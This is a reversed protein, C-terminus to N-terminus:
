THQIPFDQPLVVAQSSATPCYILVASSPLSDTLNVPVSISDNQSRAGHKPINIFGSM